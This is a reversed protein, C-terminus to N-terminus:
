LPSLRGLFLVADSKTPQFAFSDVDIGNHVTGTWPLGPALRRQSESVAVIAARGTLLDYYRAYESDAPHHFTAVVPARHSGATLPGALSHDHVVDVDLADLMRAAAATHVLEPLTEGLRESPPREYTRGFDAVTRREGAGIVLVDHGRDVLGKALDAVVAEV